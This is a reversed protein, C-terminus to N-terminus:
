YKQIKQYAIVLNDYSVVHGVEPIVFAGTFQDTRARSNFRYELNRLAKITKSDLRGTRNLRLFGQIKTLNDSNTGTTVERMTTAGAIGSDVGLIKSLDHLGSALQEVYRQLKQKEILALKQDNSNQVVIDWKYLALTLTKLEASIGTVFMSTAEQAGDTALKKDVEKSISDIKNLSLVVQSLIRGGEGGAKLLGISASVSGSNGSTIMPDNNGFWHYLGVIGATGAATGIGLRKATEGPTIGIIRRRLPISPSGKEILKSAYGSNLSLKKWRAANKTNAIFLKFTEPNNARMYLAEQLFKTDNLHTAGHGIVEAADDMLNRFKPIHSEIGSAYFGNAAQDKSLLSRFKQLGNPQNLTKRAKTAFHLQAKAQNVNGSSSLTKKIYEKLAHPNEIISEPIVVSNFRKTEIIQSMTNAINSPGFARDVSGLTEAHNKIIASARAEYQSLAQGFENVGERTRKAFDGVFKEPLNSELLERAALGTTKAAEDVAEKGSAKWGIRAADIAEDSGSIAAHGAAKAVDDGFKGSM